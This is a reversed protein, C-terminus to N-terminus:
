TSIPAARKKLLPVHYRQRNSLKPDPSGVSAGACTYFLGLFLHYIGYFAPTIAGIILGDVLSGGIGSSRQSGVGANRLANTMARTQFAEERNREIIEETRTRPSM